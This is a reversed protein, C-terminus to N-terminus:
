GHVVKRYATSGAQLTKGTIESVQDRIGVVTREVQNAYDGAKRRILLRTKCGPNPAFLLGLGLGVFTGFILPKM